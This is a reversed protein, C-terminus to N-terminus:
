YSGQWRIASSLEQAIDAQVAEDVNHSVAFKNWISLADASKYITSKELQVCKGVTLVEM